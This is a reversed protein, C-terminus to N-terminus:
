KAKPGTKMTDVLNVNVDIECMVMLYKVGRSSTVPFKRDPGNWDSRENGYGKNHYRMKQKKTANDIIEQM